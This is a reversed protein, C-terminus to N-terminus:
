EVKCWGGGNHGNNGGYGYSPYEVYNKITKYYTKDPSYSCQYCETGSVYFSENASSILTFNIIM